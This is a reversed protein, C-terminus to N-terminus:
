SRVTESITHQKNNIADCTSVKTPTADSVLMVCDRVAVAKDDDLFAGYHEFSAGNRLLRRM